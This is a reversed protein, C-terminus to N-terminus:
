NKNKELVSLQYDVNYGNAKAQNLFKLVKKNGVISNASFLEFDLGFFSFLLDFIFGLIKELYKFFSPNFKSNKSNIKLIIRKGKSSLNFFLKNNNPIIIKFIFHDLIINEKTFIAKM